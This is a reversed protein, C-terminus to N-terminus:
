FVRLNRQPSTEAPQIEGVFITGKVHMIKLSPKTYLKDTLVQAITFLTLMKKSGM